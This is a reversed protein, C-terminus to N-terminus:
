ESRRERAAVGQWWPLDGIDIWQGLLIYAGWERNFDIHDRRQPKRREIEGLNGDLWAVFAALLDAYCSLQGLSLQPLEVTVVPPPAPQGIASRHQGQGNFGRARKGQAEAEPDLAEVWGFGDDGGLTAIRGVIIREARPSSM